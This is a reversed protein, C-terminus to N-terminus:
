LASQIAEFVSLEVKAIAKDDESTASNGITRNTEEIAAKVSEISFDSLPFAEPVTLNMTSNPNIVAFGGSVFFKQIEAAPSNAEPIIELVGPRLQEIMPVHNALIGMDGSATALNIQHIPKNKFIVQHPLVFTVNLK